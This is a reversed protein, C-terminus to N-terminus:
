RRKTVAPRITRQARNSRLRTAAFRPFWNLVIGDTRRVHKGAQVFLLPRRARCRVRYERQSSKSVARRAGCPSHRGHVADSQCTLPALIRGDLATFVARPWRSVLAAPRSGRHLNAHPARAGFVAASSKPEGRYKPNIPTNIATELSSATPEPNERRFCGNRRLLGVAPATSVCPSSAAMWGVLKPSCRGSATRHYRARHRCWMVKHDPRRPARAMPLSGIPNRFGNRTARYLIRKGDATWVPAQGGGGSVLFPTTTGRELDLTWLTTTGEAIQIMAQRRDPSIHRGRIGERCCGKTKGTRCGGVRRPKQNRSPGWGYALTGTDSVAYAAAGEDRPSPSRLPSRCAGALNASRRCGRCPLCNTSRAYVLRGSRVPGRCTARRSDAHSARRERAVSECDCARGDGSRAEGHLPMTQNARSCRRGCTVSSVCGSGAPHSETVHPRLHLRTVLRHEERHPATRPRVLM